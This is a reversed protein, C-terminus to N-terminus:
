YSGLDCSPVIDLCRCVLAIDGALVLDLDGELLDCPIEALEIDHNHIGAHRVM